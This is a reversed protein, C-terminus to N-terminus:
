SIEINNNYYKIHGIPINYTESLAKITKRIEDMTEIVEIYRTCYETDQLIIQRCDGVDYVKLIDSIHCATTSVNEFFGEDPYTGIYEEFNEIQDYYDEADHLYLIVETYAKFKIDM